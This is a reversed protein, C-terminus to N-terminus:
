EKKVKYCVDCSDGGGGGMACVYCVCIGAYREIVAGFPPLASDALGLRM